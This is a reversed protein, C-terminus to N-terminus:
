NVLEVIAALEPPHLVRGPGDQRVYRCLASRQPEGFQGNRSFTSLTLSGSKKKWPILCRHPQAAGAPRTARFVPGLPILALARRVHHMATRRAFPLAGQWSTRRPSAVVAWGLVVLLASLGGCLWQVAGPRYPVLTKTGPDCCTPRGGLQQGRAHM